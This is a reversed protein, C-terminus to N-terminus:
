ATLMTELEEAFEKPTKMNLSTHPRENNYTNRWEEIQIRADRIDMFVRENLCEDRFRSNFSEIFANQIPKGPEIFEVELKGYAWQMFANSTFEPGNDCRVRKPLVKFESFVRVLDAGTIMHHVHIAKAEKTFDDVINLCKVKRKGECWDHVFDMSWVENASEARPKRVRIVSGLKKRKRNKLQLKLGQYIRETRKYNKVLGEKQLLWHLRPCGFRRHKESLESLRTVIVEDKLPRRKEYDLTSRNLGLIKCSKSKSVNFKEQLMVAAIKKNKPGVM